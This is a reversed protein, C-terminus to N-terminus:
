ICLLRKAGCTGSRKSFSASLIRYLEDRVFKALITSLFNNRFILELFKVVPTKLVRTCMRDSTVSSHGYFINIMVITHPGAKVSMTGVLDTTLNARGVASRLKHVM